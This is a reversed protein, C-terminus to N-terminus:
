LRDLRQHHRRGLPEAGKQLLVPNGGLAIWVQVSPAM